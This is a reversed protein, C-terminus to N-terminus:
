FTQSTRTWITTLRVPCVTQGRTMKMTLIASSSMPVPRTSSRPARTWATFSSRTRLTSALRHWSSPLPLAPLSPSCAQSEQFIENSSSFGSCTKDEGAKLFFKQKQDGVVSPIWISSVAASFRFSEQDEKKGEQIVIPEQSEIDVGNKSKGDEVKSGAESNEEQSVNIETENSEGSELGSRKIDLHDLKIDEGSEETEAEMLNESVASHESSMAGPSETVDKSEENRGEDAKEDEVELEPKEEKRDGSPDETEDSNELSGDAAKEKDGASM